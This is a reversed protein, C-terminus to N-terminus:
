QTPRLPQRVVVSAEQVSKTHTWTSEANQRSGKHRVRQTNHRDVNNQEPVASLCVLRPTEFVPFAYQTQCSATSHAASRAEASGSRTETTACIVQASHMAPGAAGEVVWGRWCCGCGAAACRSHVQAAAALAGLCGCRWCARRHQPLQPCCYVQRSLGTLM